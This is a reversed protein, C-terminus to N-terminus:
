DRGHARLIAVAEDRREKIAWDLPGGTHSLNLPRDVPLPGAAAHITLGGALAGALILTGARFWGTRSGPHRHM